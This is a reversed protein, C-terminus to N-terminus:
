PKLKALRQLVQQAKDPKGAIQYAKSLKTLIERVQKQTLFDAKAQNRALLFSFDDIATQASQFYSDPLRLCVNARLLRIEKHNPDLAVARNLADLGTRAKEEKELLKVADRALLALSSGYYAEIVANNPELGRLTLLKEYASMVAKKDGEIGNSHLQKAEKLLNERYSDMAM